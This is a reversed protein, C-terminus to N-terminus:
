QKAYDKGDFGARVATRWENLAKTMRAVIDPHKSALNTANAPDAYIDFLRVAVGKPEVILKHPGDIWVGQVDAVFDVDAFARQKGKGGGNWLLFGLPQSRVKLKGDLLPVLSVGDLVPQNPVTVGTLELITPYIDVHGCVVDTKVPTKVRAPWELLGQTRCGVTMKGKGSPDQSEPTIGGNDSTFWLLTNEAIGLKRLEKRLNGVAADVGSVEGWYEQKKEPLDAYLAKFEEAAAHPSHPSGFCVYAFFPEPGAAHERVFQLALDMTAVSTDGQLAVKEKSDGVQLSAGLDFYNIAWIARDFGVKAPSTEGGGLHWKGFQGTKYGASKLARALTIEQPRMAGLHHLGTRFPNRGCLIAFRGPSCMQQGPYFYDFQVGKAAMDDLHPTKVVRNGHYGTDRWGMDDAVVVVINPRAPREAGRSESLTAGAGVMGLLGLGVCVWRANM